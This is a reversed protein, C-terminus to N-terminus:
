KSQRFIDSKVEIKLGFQLGDASFAIGSVEIGKVLPSSRLAIIQKALATYSQAKGQLQVINKVTDAQVSRYSIKPYTLRSLLDFFSFFYTDNIFVSRIANLSDNLKVIAQEDEPNVTLAIQKITNNLGVIENQLRMLYFRLGIYSMIVLVLIIISVWLLWRWSPLTQTLAPFKPAIEVM